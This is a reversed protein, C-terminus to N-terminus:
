LCTSIQSALMHLQGGWACLFGRACGRRLLWPAPVWRAALHRAPMCSAGVMGPSGVMEVAMSGNHEIATSNSSCGPRGRRRATTCGRLGTGVGLLVHYQTKKFFFSTSRSFTNSFAAGSVVHGYPAKLSHCPDGRYRLTRSDVRQVQM